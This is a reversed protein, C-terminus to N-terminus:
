QIVLTRGHVWVNLDEKQVPMIKLKNAFSNTLDGYSTHDENYNNVETADVLAFIGGQQNTIPLTDASNCLHFGTSQINFANFNHPMFGRMGEPNNVPDVLTNFQYVLSSLRLVGNMGSIYGGYIDKDPDGFLDNHSRVELKNYKMNQNNLRRPSILSLWCKPNWGEQILLADSIEAGNTTISYKYNEPTDAKAPDRFAQVTGIIIGDFEAINGSVVDEEQFITIDGFWQSQPIGKENNFSYTFGIAVTDPAIQFTYETSLSIKVLRDIITENNADKWQSHKDTPVIFMSFPDMVVTAGVNTIKDVRFKPRSLLGPTHVGSMFTNLYDAQLPTSYKWGIKQGGIDTQAM